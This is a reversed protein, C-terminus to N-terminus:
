IKTLEDLIVKKGKSFGRNHVEVLLNLIVVENIGIKIILDIKKLDNIPLSLKDWISKYKSDLLSDM